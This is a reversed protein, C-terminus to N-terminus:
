VSRPLPALSESAPPDSARARAYATVEAPDLMAAQWHAAMQLGLSVPYDRSFTIAEKSGSIALPSQGAIRRACARAGELMAAQNQHVHNVFGLRHAERASLREGTYALERVVAEPLLKPLRQLTGLDAMMGINIEQICFFADETAYRLDCACVMDVGGGVCGGQIAAIVPFRSKEFLNFIDQLWLAKRKLQERQRATSTTLFTAGFVSLDMGATFHKGTSAVILVRTLGDRDLAALLEPLEEWFEATMTNLDGGRTLTLEAVGDVRTLSFCSTTLNM